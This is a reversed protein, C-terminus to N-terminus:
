NGKPNHQQMMSRDLTAKADRETATLQQATSCVKGAGLRSGMVEENRCFYKEGHRMELKYGEALFHREDVSEAPAAPKDTSATVPSSTTTAASAAPAVAAPPPSTASSTPADALAVCSGGIGVCALVGLILRM